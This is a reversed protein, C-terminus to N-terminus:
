VFFFSFLLLFFLSLSRAFIFNRGTESLVSHCKAFLKWKTSKQAVTQDFHKSMHVKKEKEDKRKGRLTECKIERINQKLFEITNKVVFDIRCSLFSLLIM